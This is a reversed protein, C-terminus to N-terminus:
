AIRIPVGAVDTRAVRGVFFRALAFILLGNGFLIAFFSGFFLSYLLIPTLCRIAPDSSRGVLKLTAGVLMSTLLVGIVGFNIYAEVFFVSNSSGTGTEFGGYQYEFVLREFQVRELFFIKSLVMNTAGWLEQGSWTLDWFALSDLATQIPVEISRYWLFELVDREGDAFGSVIVNTTLIFVAGILLPFLKVSRINAVVIMAAIPALARVFFAKEVFVVSYTLFLILIPWALKSRTLFALCMAYPLFIVTIMGNVYPLAAYLGERAKLFNERAFAVDEVSKGELAEILPVSPASVLTVLAFLVFSLFIGRCIMSSSPPLVNRRDQAPTILWGAMVGICSLSTLLLMLLHFYEAADTPVLWLAGAYYLFLFAAFVPGSRQPSILARLAYEM